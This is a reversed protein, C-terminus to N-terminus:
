TSCGVKEGADKKEQLKYLAAQFDKVRNPTQNYWKTGTLSDAAAKYQGNVIKAWTNKFTKRMFGTGGQYLVSGLAVAFCGQDELCSEKLHDAVAGWFKDIDKNFIAKVEDDSICTGCPSYKGMESSKVLHGVGITLCGGCGGCGSCKSGSRYASPCASQSGVGDYYSCNKYGERSMIHEKFQEKADKGPECEAGAWNSTGVGSAQDSEITTGSSASTNLGLNALVGPMWWYQSRIQNSQFVSGEGLDNKTERQTTKGQNGPSKSDCVYDGQQTIYCSGAHASKQSASLIACCLAMVLISYFFSYRRM